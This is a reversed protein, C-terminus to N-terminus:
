ERERRRATVLMLAGGAVLLVGGVALGTSDVGTFALTAPREVVEAAVVAPQEVLTPAALEAEVVEVTTTTPPPWPVTDCQPVEVTAAATSGADGHEGNPGWPAVAVVEVRHSLGTAPATVTLPQDPALPGHAVVTGDILVAVDANVRQTADDSAWPTATVTISTCDASVALEPHCASAPGALGILAVAALALATLPKRPNM